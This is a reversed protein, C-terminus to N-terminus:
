NNKLHIRIKYIRKRFRLEAIRISVLTELKLLATLFIHVYQSCNFNHLVISFKFNLICILSMLTM